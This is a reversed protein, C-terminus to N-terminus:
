GLGLMRRLTNDKNIFHHKLAAATHLVALGIVTYALYRHIFGATDEQIPISTITAPVEFWDFVSIGVGKATSILYGSVIILLTLADLGFHALKAGAIEVPTCGAVPDPQINTIKWVIRLLLFIILLMGLSKHIFPLTNYLSDYYTLELMYLGLAFLGIVILAIVWHLIIAVLGFREATNLM